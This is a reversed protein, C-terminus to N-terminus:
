YLIDLMGDGTAEAHELRDTLEIIEDQFRRPVEDHNFSRCLDGILQGLEFEDMPVIEIRASDAVKLLAAEIREFPYGYKLILQREEPLLQVKITRRAM